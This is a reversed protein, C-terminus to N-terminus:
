LNSKLYINEETVVADLAQDHEETPIQRCLQSQYALGVCLFKHNKQRFLSILRDFYGGGFGLRM